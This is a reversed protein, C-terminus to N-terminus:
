SIRHAARPPLAAVSRPRPPLRRAALKRAAGQGVKEFLANRLNDALVGAFRAVAYAVVLGAVVGFAAAGGSMRDIVAKYAFPM